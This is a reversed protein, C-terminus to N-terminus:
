AGVGVGVIAALKAIGDAADRLFAGVKHMTSNEQLYHIGDATIELDRLDSALIYENGWARVIAAGTILGEDQMMKLVATFYEDSEVGKRVMAQFTVDDFVIKRKLCAYQYTLVRYVIVDYDDKAM